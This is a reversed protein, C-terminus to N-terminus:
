AGILKQARFRQDPLLEDLILSRSRVSFQHKLGSVFM